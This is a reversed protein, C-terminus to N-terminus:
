IKNALSIYENGEEIRGHKICGNGYIMCKKKLTKLTMQRQAENLRGSELIKKLASIRFKDGGIFKRSQQDSHGGRKIVLADPIYGIPYKCLIRLWLDYDEAFPLGEDWLGIEEFLRRRMMVASPSVLCLELSREYLDGGGKRHKNMPNVRIGCRIWMEETHAIMLSADAEFLARQRALKEPLWSDDSDLFAILEGASEAIGKNRAASPGRNEQRFYKIQPYASLLCRETNDTSGDDVVVIEFREDTQNVVSSVAEVVSEARNFTPIVVSILDIM